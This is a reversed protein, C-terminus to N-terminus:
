QQPIGQSSEEFSQIAQEVARHRGLYGVQEELGAARPLARGRAHVEVIRSRWERMSLEEHLSRSITAGAVNIYPSKSLDSMVLWPPGFESVTEMDRNGSAILRHTRPAFGSGRASM